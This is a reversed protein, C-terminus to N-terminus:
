ELEALNLEIDYVSLLRDLEAQKAKAKLMHRIEGKVDDLSKRIVKPEELVKVIHYGYETLLPDSVAGSKTSFASSSFIPSISGRKIWGLDGGKKGSIKDDSRSKALEEFSEGARLKSHIEFIDTKVKQIEDETMGSNTRILIHAVHVREEEYESAHNSFYNKVSDDTVRDNIFSEFYRSVIMNRRYDSVAQNIEALDVSDEGLIAKELAVGQAYQKLISAKNEPRDEQVGKVKLYTSFEEPTIRQSDVKAVYDSDSCGVLLVAILISMTNKIM